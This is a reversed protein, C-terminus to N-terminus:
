TAVTVTHIMTQTKRGRVCVCRCVSKYCVCKESVGKQSVGKDTVHVIRECAYATVSVCGRREWSYLACEESECAFGRADKRLRMCVHVEYRMGVRM